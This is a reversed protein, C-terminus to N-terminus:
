VFVGPEPDALKPDPTSPLNFQAVAIPVHLMVKLLLVLTVKVAGSPDLVEKVM